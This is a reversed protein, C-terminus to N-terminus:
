KKIRLLYFNKKKIKEVINKQYPLIYFFIRISRPFNIDLFINKFGKRQLLFLKLFILLDFLSDGFKSM